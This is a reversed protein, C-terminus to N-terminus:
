IIQGAIINNPFDQLTRKTPVGFGPILLINSIWDMKPLATTSSRQLATVYTKLILDLDIMSNFINDFGLKNTTYTIWCYDFRINIHLIM